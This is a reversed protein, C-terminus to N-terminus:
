GSLLKGKARAFEEESLVGQDRLIAIRALEDALSPNTASGLPRVNGVGGTDSTVSGGIFGTNARLSRPVSGMATANTLGRISQAVEATCRKDATGLRMEGTVTAVEVGGFLWGSSDRVRTVMDYTWQRVQLTKTMLGKDLAILRRNTSALLGFRGNEFKGWAVACLMEDPGLLQALEAVAADFGAPAAKASVVKALSYIEAARGPLQGLRACM